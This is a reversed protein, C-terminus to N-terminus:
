LLGKVSNAIEDESWLIERLLGGPGMICYYRCNFPEGLLTTPTNRPVSRRMARQVWLYATAVEWDNQCHIHITSPHSNEIDCGFQSKDWYIITM